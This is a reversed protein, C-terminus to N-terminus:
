RLFVPIEIINKTGKPALFIKWPRLNKKTTIIQENKDLCIIDVNFRMGFTHIARCNKLALGFNSKKRFSLGLFRQWFTKAERIEM